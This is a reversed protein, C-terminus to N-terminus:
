KKNWAGEALFWLTETVELSVKFKTETLFTPMAITRVAWWIAIVFWIVVTVCFLIISLRFLCTLCILCILARSTYLVVCARCLLSISDFICGAPVCCLVLLLLYPFNGSDHNFIQRTKSMKSWKKAIFFNRVVWGWKCMRVTVENSIHFILMYNKRNWGESDQSSLSASASSWLVGSSRCGSPSSLDSLSRLASCSSPSSLDTEGSSRGSSPSSLDTKASPSPTSGSSDM